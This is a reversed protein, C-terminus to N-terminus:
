FIDFNGLFLLSIGWSYFLIHSFSFNSVCVGHHTDCGIYPRRVITPRVYWLRPVGTGCDHFAMFFAM